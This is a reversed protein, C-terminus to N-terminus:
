NENLVEKYPEPLPQWAIVEGCLDDGSEYYWEDGDFGACRVFDVNGFKRFITVQYFGSIRPNNEKVPIWGNTLQQQLAFIITQYCEDFDKNIDSEFDHFTHIICMVQMAKEIEQKNM